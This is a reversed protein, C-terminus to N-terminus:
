VYGFIDKVDGGQAFDTIHYIDDSMQQLTTSNMGILCSYMRFALEDKSNHFRDLWEQSVACEGDTIMVLDGKQSGEDNFQSELVEIARSIPLEFDTGGHYGAEAFDLVEVPSAIGKPFSFEILDDYGSSFIIGYFDRNQKYAIHLLAIGVARAWTDRVGTMSGSSDIMCVIAGRSVKEKGRLQYQLLERNAYKKLFLIKTNEASLLLLESPLVKHIDNGLEIDHVEDIGHVIKQAQESMALRVFRGVKEALERLNRNNRIRAALEMRAAADMRQLAGPETGFSDLLAQTGETQEKSDKAAARGIQRLRNSNKKIGDDIAQSGEEYEDLADQLAQLAEDLDGDGDELADLADQVQQDQENINDQLQALEEEEDFLEQLKLGFDVAAMASAWEDLQTYTLLEDWERTDMARKLAAHNIKHTPKMEKENHVKPVAKFMGLFEDQVIDSWTPKDVFRSKALDDLETAKERMQRYAGADFKDAKIVNHEKFFEGLMRYDNLDRGKAKRVSEVLWDPINDPALNGDGIAM